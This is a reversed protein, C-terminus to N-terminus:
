GPNARARRPWLAFALMPAFYCVEIGMHTLGRRSFLALGTPADPIPQVPLHFRTASLPWLFMIGRGDRALADLLGHSGVILAVAVALRLRAGAGGRALAGIALAVVLAFLPTHTFGRHGWTGVDAVGLSVWLVDFDPLVALLVFGLLAV